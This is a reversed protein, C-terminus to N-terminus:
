PHYEAHAVLMLIFYYVHQFKNGFCHDEVIKTLYELNWNIVKIDLYLLYFLLFWVCWINFLLHHFTFMPHGVLRSVISRGRVIGSQICIKRLVKVLDTNISNCHTLHSTACPLYYSSSWLFYLCTLFCNISLNISWRWIISM